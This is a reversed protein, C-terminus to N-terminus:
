ISDIHIQSDKDKKDVTFIIAFLSTFIILIIIGNTYSRLELTVFLLNITFYISIILSAIYSQKSIIHLKKDSGYYLLLYFIFYFLGRVVFLVGILWVTVWASPDTFPNIYTYVLFCIVLGVILKVMSITHFINRYTKSM